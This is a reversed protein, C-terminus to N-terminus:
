EHRGGDIVRFQKLGMERAKRMVENTDRRLVSAISVVHVHGYNVRLFTLEGETWPRSM